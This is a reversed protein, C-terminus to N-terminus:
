MQKFLFERHDSKQKLKREREKVDEGIFSLCGSIGDMPQQMYHETKRM